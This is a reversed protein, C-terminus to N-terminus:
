AEFHCTKVESVQWKLALYGPMAEPQYGAHQDCLKHDLDAWYFRMAKSILSGSKTLSNLVMLDIYHICLNAYLIRSIKRGLSFVLHSGSPLARVNSRLPWTQVSFNIFCQEHTLSLDPNPTNHEWCSAPFL